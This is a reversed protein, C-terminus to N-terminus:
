VHARGIKDKEYEAKLAEWAATGSNLEIIISQHIPEILFYLFSYAKWDMTDWIAAAAAETPKMKMIVDWYGDMAFYVEVDKKFTTWNQGNFKTISSLLM